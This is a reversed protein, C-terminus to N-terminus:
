PAPSRCTTAVGTPRWTEVYLRGGRDTLAQHLRDACDQVSRGRPEPKPADVAFGALLGRQASWWSRDGVIVLASRARTIAVNWLEPQGTIWARTRDSIGPAGVPSLVMVDREDGPFRRVTGCIVPTPGRSLGAESLRTQILRGQPSLPTVVGISVQPHERRLALVERVAADAEAVNSGSGTNGRCFEGPVDVWRVPEAVRVRLRAVDTLVTLRDQYVERAPVAIIEPHCRYHEELLSVAGAASALTIL